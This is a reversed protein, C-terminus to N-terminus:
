DAEKEGFVLANIFSNDIFRDNKDDPLIDTYRLGTRKYHTWKHEDGTVTIPKELLDLWGPIDKLEAAAYHFLDGGSTKKTMLCAYFIGFEESYSEAFARLFRMGSKEEKKTTNENDNNKLFMDVAIRLETRSLAIHMEDLENRITDRLKGTEAELNSTDDIILPVTIVREIGLKAKKTEFNDHLMKLDENLNDVFVIVKHLKEEPM